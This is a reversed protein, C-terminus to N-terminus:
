FSLFDKDYTILIRNENRALELLQNNKIGRKNLEQGNYCCIRKVTSM